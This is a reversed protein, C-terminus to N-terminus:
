RHDPDIYGSRGIIDWYIKSYVFGAFVVRENGFVEEVAHSYEETAPFVMLTNKKPKIKVPKHQFVLEGGEYDDNFYLVVGLTIWRSEYDCEPHNEYHWSLAHGGVKECQPCECKEPKPLYKTLMRRRRFKQTENDLVSAIRGEVTKEFYNKDELSKFRSILINKHYDDRESEWKVDMDLITKAEEDSIFNDIYFINEELYTKEM